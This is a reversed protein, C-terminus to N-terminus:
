ASSSDTLADLTPHAVGGTVEVPADADRAAPVLRPGDPGFVYRPEPFIVLLALYLVGSVLLGAFFSLDVGNAINRLPGAILSTNALLLGVACGALWATLARGNCGRQFWYVGGRQHRNFVQLDEPFYVGRRVFFGILMIAIWPASFILILATFANVTDVINFVFRGLFVLAISLGGIFLTAQFRSFIPVVSSFDLGTGYLSAVGGAIAGTVAVLVLAVVYWAPAVGVLGTIYAGADPVLTATAAGFVFPLLSALQALVTAWGLSRPSTGAPMYRSWDGLFPGYSLPNAMVILMAAIWTPWFTGLAYADARGEFGADFPGAFAFIGLVLLFAVLPAILTNALLVWRYGVVCILFIVMAAVAYAGAITADNVLGTDIRGLGAVVADGGVWVSIAFFTIAILLSLFSGVVRGAVGFHAGSSVANNTHTLPGFFSLPVLLVSGVAVGVVIATVSAWFSLGMAIPLTGLIITTTTLTAGVSIRFFDAPTSTREKPPIPDVGYSEIVPERRARVQNEKTM